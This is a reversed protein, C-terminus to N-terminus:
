LANRKKLEHAWKLSVEWQKQFMKYYALPNKVSQSRYYSLLLKLKYTKNQEVTCNIIRFLMVTPSPKPTISEDKWALVPKTRFGGIPAKLHLLQPQEFFLVDIGKNRIQMGFDGDEGFGFEYGKGFQCDLIASQHVVSSGAGFGGWQFPTSNKDIPELESVCKFSAALCHLAIIKQLANEIFNSAFRIDDDAFFIWDNSVAKLGLNRANCAGTQHTFISIIEFPWNETTLYDLTSISNEEPNQEVIIVKKPLVTQNRLDCLVDYLYPKRGITPILVDLSANHVDIQSAVKLEIKDIEKNFTRRRYFLLLFARIITYNKEYIFFSYFLIFLWGIKFHQKTFRVTKKVDDFSFNTDEVCNYNLLSPESYCFVGKSQTLKSISKLFYDFNSNQPIISLAFKLFEFRAVGVKSSMLWTAYKKKPSIKIAVSLDVYGMVRNFFDQTNPNFSYISTNSLPLQEIVSLNLQNSYNVDCWVVLTADSVFPTLESIGKLIPLGELHRLGVIESIVSEIRFCNHYIVVM